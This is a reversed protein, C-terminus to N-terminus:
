KNRRGLRYGLSLAFGILIFCCVFMFTYQEGLVNNNKELETNKNELVLKEKRLTEIQNKFEKNEQLITDVFYKEDNTM